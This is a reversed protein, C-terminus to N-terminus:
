IPGVLAAAIALDIETILEQADAGDLKGSKLFANTQNIFANLQNDGATTNGQNLSSIANNLKVILANGNGSDLIGSTVMTTVQTIILGLEQAASLVTQTVAASTNAIFNPDGSYSATITHSGVSLKPVSLMALGSSDLSSTGLPTSGDLLFTVTGTPAVGLFVLPSVTATFTVGQGFV